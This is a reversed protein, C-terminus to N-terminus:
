DIKQQRGTHAGAIEASIRRFMYQDYAHSSSVINNMNFEGKERNYASFPLLDMGGANTYQNGYASLWFEVINGMNTVGYPQSFKDKATKVLEDVYDSQPYPRKSKAGPRMATKRLSRNTQTILNEINAGTYFMNKKEREAYATIKELFRGAAEAYNFVDEDFLMGGADKARKNANKMHLCFIEVLEDHTPMFVCFRMDFRGDRLLEPKLDTVSNSTAFFFIQKKNEQMWDLLATLINMKVDNKGGENNVAFTKEIEDMLVICPALAEIRKRCRKFNAESDGVLGGLLNDMRFQVLPVNGEMGGMIAAVMKAAQTKGSGPVGTLLVGKPPENGYLHAKEVHLFEEKVDEKIWDLFTKMGAVTDKPELMTVTSDHLAANKKWEVIMRKRSESIKRRNQETGSGDNARGFFSGFEAQLDVIIEQLGKRSIGRFDRAAEHIRKRDVPDAGQKGILKDSNEGKAYEKKAESLMYEEIDEQDMEPIDIIEIEHEFGEPVKLFPSVLFLLLFREHEKEEWEAMSLFQKLFHSASQRAGSKSEQLIQFDNMRFFFSRERSAAGIVAANKREKGWFEESIYDREKLKFAEYADALIGNSTATQFFSASNGAQLIKWLNKDVGKDIFSKLTDAMEEFIVQLIDRDETVLYVIHRGKEKLMSLKKEIEVMRAM